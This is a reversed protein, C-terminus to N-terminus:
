FYYYIITNIYYRYWQYSHQWINPDAWRQQMHIEPLEKRLASYISLLINLDVHASEVIGSKCFHKQPKSKHLVGQHSRTPIVHFNPHWWVGACYFICGQFGQKHDIHDRKHQKWSFIQCFWQLFTNVSNQACSFHKSVHLCKEKDAWQRNNHSVWCSLVCLSADPLYLCVCLAKQQGVSLCRRVCVYM